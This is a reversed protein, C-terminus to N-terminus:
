LVVHTGWHHTAAHSYELRCRVMEPQLPIKLGRDFGIVHLAFESCLSRPDGVYRGCADPLTRQIRVRHSFAVFTRQHTTLPACVSGPFRGSGNDAIGDFKDAISDAMVTMQSHAELPADVRLYSPRRPCLVPFIKSAFRPGDVVGQTFLFRLM